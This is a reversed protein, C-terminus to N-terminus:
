AEITGFFHATLTNAMINAPKENTSTAHNRQSYLSPKPSVDMPPPTCRTFPTTVWVWFAPNVPVKVWKKSFKRPLGPGTVLANPSCAWALEAALVIM